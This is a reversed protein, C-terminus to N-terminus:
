RRWRASPNGSDAAGVGAREAAPVGLGKVVRVPVTAIQSASRSHISIRSRETPACTTVM